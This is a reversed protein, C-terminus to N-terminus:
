MGKAIGLMDRTRLHKLTLLLLSACVMMPVFAALKHLMGSRGRSIKRNIPRSLDTLSAHQQFSGCDVRDRGRNGMELFGVSKSGGIVSTKNGNTACGEQGVACIYLLM